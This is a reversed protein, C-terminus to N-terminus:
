SCNRQKIIVAITQRIRQKEDNSLETRSLKHSFASESIGLKNAIEYNYIHNQKILIRMDINFLM